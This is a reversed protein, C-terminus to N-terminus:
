TGMKLCVSEIGKEWFCSFQNYESYFSNDWTNLVKNEIVGDLIIRGKVRVDGCNGRLKNNNEALIQIHAYKESIKRV